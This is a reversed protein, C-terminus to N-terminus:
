RIKVWTATLMAYFFVLKTENDWGIFARPDRGYDNGYLYMSVGIDIMPGGYILPVYGLTKGGIIGGTIARFTAFSEALLSFSAALYWYQQLVSMAINAHRDERITDSEAVFICITSIFICFGSNGRLIHFMEWLFPNVFIVAVFVLLVLLSIGYGVYKVIWLWDYEPGYAPAEVIEAILALIFM